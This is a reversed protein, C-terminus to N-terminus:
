PFFLVAKDEQEVYMGDAGGRREERERSRM